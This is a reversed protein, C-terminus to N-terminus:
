EFLVEWYRNVFGYNRAVVTQATAERGRLEKGKLLGGASLIEGGLLAKLIVNKRM